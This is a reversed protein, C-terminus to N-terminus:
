ELLRYKMRDEKKEEENQENNGKVLLTGDRETFVEYVFIWYENLIVSTKQFVQVHDLHQRRDTRAAAHRRDRRLKYYHLM